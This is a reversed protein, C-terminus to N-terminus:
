TFAYERRSHAIRQVHAPLHPLFDKLQLIPVIPVGIHFKQAGPMLSLIIPVFYACSWGTIGIRETMDKSAEALAKTRGLQMEAAKRSGALRWSRRWHKCDVCAIVPKRLGLIDIEWRRNAFSFRFHKKVNFNNMEFALISLNEFEEWTLFRCVREIDAGLKIAYIALGLRGELGIQIENGSLDFLILQTNRKLVEKVVSVSVQAEKSLSLINTNGDKSLGLLTVLVDREALM